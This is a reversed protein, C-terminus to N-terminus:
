FMHSSAVCLHPTTHKVYNGLLTVQQAPLAVAVRDGGPDFAAVYGQPLMFLLLTWSKEQGTLVSICGRPTPYQHALYTDSPLFPLALYYVQAPNCSIIDLNALIM